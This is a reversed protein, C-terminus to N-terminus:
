QARRPREAKLAESIEIGLVGGDQL